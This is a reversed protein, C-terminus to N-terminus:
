ITQFFGQFYNLGKSSSLASCGLISKKSHGRPTKISNTLNIWIGRAPPTESSSNSAVSEGSSAAGSPVLQENDNDDDDDSSDDDDEQIEERDKDDPESPYVAFYM